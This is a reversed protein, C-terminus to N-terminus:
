AAADECGRRVADNCGLFQVLVLASQGVAGALGLKQCVVSRRWDASVAELEHM